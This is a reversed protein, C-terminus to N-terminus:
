GSLSWKRSRAMSSTALDAGAGAIAPAQQQVRGDVFATLNGTRPDVGVTVHVGERGSMMRSTKAATYVSEGGSFNVLEPGREGVLALGRQASSTGVAYGNINGQIKKGFLGAGGLQLGLNLVAGLIDLFGGGKIAGTMRDLASLVGTAMDKFSEAVRVTSVKAKTSMLGLSENFKEMQQRMVDVPIAKGPDITALGTDRPGQEEQRRRFRAAEATSGSLLGAAEGKDITALDERLAKLRAAEPFLRDLLRSVDSALARFAENTKATAAKAPEVMLADLKNMHQGVEEVMDPIWSNGVVRDYLWAFTGEVARIKGMAWDFVQGLKDQLWTKVGSYLRQMFATATSALNSLAQNIRVGANVITESATTFATWMRELQQPITTGNKIANETNSATWADFADAWGQMRNSFDIAAIKLDSVGQEYRLLADANELLKKNQQAELVFRLAAVKDAVEDAKAIESESLVIGLEQAARKMDDIGASGGELLTALKQGSKGFLDVALSARTAPDEIRAIGDAILPLVEESRKGRIDDLSIGLKALAEAPEKAGLAADGLRRTLQALGNDMEQASLGVQTAAFRYEQLATTSVGAAAAQEGLGGATDVAAQTMDRLQTLTETAILGTFAGKIANAAKGMSAQLRGATTTARQSGREFEATNLGLEVSLRAIIDGIAM